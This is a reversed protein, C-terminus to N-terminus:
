SVSTRRSYLWIQSCIWQNAASSILSGKFIVFRTAFTGGNSAVSPRWVQLASLFKHTTEEVGGLGPAGREIALQVAQQV